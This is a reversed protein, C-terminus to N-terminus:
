GESKTATDRFQRLLRRTEGGAMYAHTMTAIKDRSKAEELGVNELGRNVNFRYFANRDDLEEHDDRFKNATRETETAIAVFTKAISFPDGGFPAVGPMGTGISVLCQIRSEFSRGWVIKAESWLKESPNNAGTAGDLFEQHNRGIKIPSFFTTAASTARCAEWIKVSNFLESDAELSRRYNSFQVGLERNESSNACVFRHERDDAPIGELLVLPKLPPDYVKCENPDADQDRMTADVPLGSEVIVQKIARELEATDFRAQVKGNIKIPLHNKKLVKDMMAIYVDICRDVDMRLRGLM